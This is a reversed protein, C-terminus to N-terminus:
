GRRAPLDLTNPSRSACSSTASASFWRYIASARDAPHTFSKHARRPSIPLPCGARPAPAFSSRRSSTSRPTKTPAPQLPTFNLGFHSRSLSSESCLFRAFVPVPLRNASDASCVRHRDGAKAAGRIVRKIERWEPCASASSRLLGFPRRLGSGVRPRRM